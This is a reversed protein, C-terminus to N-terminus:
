MVIITMVHYGVTDANLGVVFFETLLFSFNNVAFVHPFNALEGTGTDRESRTSTCTSSSTSM